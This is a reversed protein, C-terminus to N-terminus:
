RPANKVIIEPTKVEDGAPVESFLSSPSFSVTTIKEPSEIVLKLPETGGPNWEVNDSADGTRFLCRDIEDKKAPMIIHAFYYEGHSAPYFSYEVVDSPEFNDFVGSFWGQLEPNRQGRVIEGSTGEPSTIRSFLCKKGAPGSLIYGNDSREATVEPSLHFLQRFSYDGKTKIRDILILTRPRIFLFARAHQFDRHYRFSGELYCYDDDEIWYNVEPAEGHGPNVAWPKSSVKINAKKEEKEFSEGQRISAGPTKEALVRRDKKIGDAAAGELEPSEEFDIEEIDTDLTALLQTAIEGYDTESEMAIIEELCEKAKGRNNGLEEYSLALMLLVRAKIRGSGLGKLQQLAEIRASPQPITEIHVLMSELQTEPPDKGADSVRDDKGISIKRSNVIPVIVNHALASIVFKRETDNDNYNFVGLDTFWRVGLSSFEFSLFDDQQHAKGYPCFDAILYSEEGFPRTKGWGSRMVYLQAGIFGISSAAPTKGKEGSTLLWQLFPEESRWHGILSEISSNLSSDGILSLRGDPHFLWAINGRAKEIRTKFDTSLMLEGAASCDACFRYLLRTTLIHYSPSYEKHIMEDTFNDDLQKEMRALATDRWSSAEIFQPFTLALRLQAINAYIGHNTKSPYYRKKELYKAHRWIFELFVATFAIDQEGLGSWEHWFDIAHITRNAVSHDYWSYRSPLNACDLNDEMFDLIAKKGKDLYKREGTQRFAETSNALFDMALLNFQWNNSAAPDESWRLDDPLKFGGHIGLIYNNDLLMDARLLADPRVLWVDFGRPAREGLLSKIIELRCGTSDGKERLILAESYGERGLDILDEMVFQPSLIDCYRKKVSGEANVTLCCLTILCTASYRHFIKM